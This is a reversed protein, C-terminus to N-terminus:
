THKKSYIVLFPEQAQINWTHLPPSFNSFYITPIMLVEGQTMCGILSVSALVPGLNTKSELYITIPLSM